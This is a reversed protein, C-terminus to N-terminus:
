PFFVLLPPQMCPLPRPQWSERRAVLHYTFAASTGANRYYIAVAEAGNAECEKDELKERPITATCGCGGGHQVHFPFRGNFIACKHDSPLSLCSYQPLVAEFFCSALDDCSSESHGPVPISHYGSRTIDNNGAVTLVGVMGVLPLKDRECEKICEEVSKVDKKVAHFHKSHVCGVYPVSADRLSADVSAAAALLLALSVLKM